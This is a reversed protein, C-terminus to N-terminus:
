AGLASLLDDLYGAKTPLVMMTSYPRLMDATSNSKRDSPSIVVSVTVGHMRYTRAAIAMARADDGDRGSIVVTDPTGLWESLVESDLDASADSSQSLAALDSAMAFEVDAYTRCSAVEPDNDTLAIVRIRRPSSNPTQIRYRVESPTQYDPM